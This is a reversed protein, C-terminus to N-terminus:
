LHHSAAWYGRTFCSIKGLLVGTKSLSGIPPCITEVHAFLRVSVAATSTMGVIRNDKCLRADAAVYKERIEEALYKYKEVLKMVEKEIQADRAKVWRRHLLLRVAIPWQYVNEIKLWQRIEKGEVVQNKEDEDEINDGIYEDIYHSYNIVKTEMEEEMQRRRGFGDGSGSSEWGGVWSQSKTGRGQNGSWPGADFGGHRESRGGVDKPLTGSAPASWYGPGIGIVEGRPMKSDEKFETIKYDANMENLKEEEIHEAEALAEAIMGKGSELYAEKYEESASGSVGGKSTEFPSESTIADKLWVEVPNPKPPEPPPPSSSGNLRGQGHISPRTATSRTTIVWADDDDDDDDDEDEPLWDLDSKIGARPRQQKDPKGRELSDLQKKTLEKTGKIFELTVCHEEHM